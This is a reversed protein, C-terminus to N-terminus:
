EGRWLLAAEDVGMGHMSWWWWASCSAVVRVLWGDFGSNILVGCAGERGKETAISGGLAVEVRKRQERRRRLVVARTEAKRGGERRAAEVM